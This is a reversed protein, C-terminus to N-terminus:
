RVKFYRKLVERIEKRITDNIRKQETKSLINFPRGQDTVFKAVEANTLTSGRRSGTPGIKVSGVRVDFAKISELMQGTDTLNSKTPSTNSSLDGRRAKARKSERTADALPKLREREQGEGPVGYGLKARLKIMESAIDGLRKMTEPRRVESFAKELVQALDAKKIVVKAM